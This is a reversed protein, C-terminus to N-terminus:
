RTKAGSAPKKGSVPVSVPCGAAVADLDSPMGLDIHWKEISGESFQIMGELHMPVQFALLSNMELSTIKQQQIKIFKHM